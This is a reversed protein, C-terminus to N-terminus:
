GRRPCPSTLGGRGKGFMGLDGGLGAGGAGGRGVGQAQLLAGGQLQMQTATSAGLNMVPVLGGSSGMAATMRGAANGGQGPASMMGGQTSHALMQPAMGGLGSAGSMGGPGSSLGARSAPMMGPSHQAMSAPLMTSMSMSAGGMMGTSVDMPSIGGGPPLMMTQGMMLKSGPPRSQGPGGGVKAGLPRMGGKGGLGDSDGSISTDLYENLDVSPPTDMFLPLTGLRDVDIFSNLLADDGASLELENSTSPSHDHKRTRKDAQVNALDQLNAESAVRRTRLLKKSPMLILSSVSGGEGADLGWRDGISFQHGRSDSSTSRTPSRPQPHEQMFALNSPVTMRRPGLGPQQHLEMGENGGLSNGYSM